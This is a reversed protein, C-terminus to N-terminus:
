TKTPWASFSTACGRENFARYDAGAEILMLAYHYAGHGAARLLPTDGDDAYHGLNARAKILTRVHETRGSSIASLIPTNGYRDMLEFNGGHQLALKLYNPFSTKACMTMVSDGPTVVGRTGFHDSFVVNPDGGHELIRQFVEESAIFSWLLPTM